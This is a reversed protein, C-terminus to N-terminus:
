LLGCITSHEDGNNVYSCDRLKKFVDNEKKPTSSLLQYLLPPIVLLVFMVNQWRTLIMGGASIGLLLSQQWNPRTLWSILAIVFLTAFLGSNLHAMGYAYFSYYFIPLGLFSGFATAYKFSPLKDYKDLLHKLAFLLLWIKCITAIAVVSLFSENM